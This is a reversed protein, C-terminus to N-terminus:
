LCDNFTFQEKINIGDGLIGSFTDFFSDVVDDSIEFRLLRVASFNASSDLRALGVDVNTPNAIKTAVVQTCFYTSMDMDSQPGRIALIIPLGEIGVRYRM